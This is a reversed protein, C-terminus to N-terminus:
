PKVPDLKADKVHHIVPCRSHDDIFRTLGKREENVPRSKETRMHIAFSMRPGGSLNPGSGHYTMCDHFSMGGAPMLASVEEWKEDQPVAIGAKLGDLDQTRFGGEDILGWQHSKPVMRMPGSEETVDSLAVWATFLESGEEWIQWYHRDQHWGINKPKDAESQGSPKYLLQVWWVQIMKGGTVEAALNALVPHRIMEMVGKSAVQPLEIKCLREPDDGPNWQSREPPIGTDYQGIRIAEMGERARSVVQEPLVPRDIVCFGDEVYQQRIGAAKQAEM